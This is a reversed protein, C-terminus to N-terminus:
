GGAVPLAAAPAPAGSANASVGTVAAPDVHLRDMAPKPGRALLLAFAACALVVALSALWEGVASDEPSADIRVPMRKERRPAFAQKLGLQITM